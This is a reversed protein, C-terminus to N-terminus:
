GDRWETGNQRKVTNYTTECRLMIWLNIPRIPFLMKYCQTDLAQIKCSIHTWSSFWINPSESRGAVNASVSCIFNRSLHRSSVRRRYGGTGTMALFSCSSTLSPLVFVRMFETRLLNLLNQTKTAGIIFVVTEQSIIRHENITVSKEFSSAVEIKLTTCSGYTTHSAQGLQRFQGERYTGIM